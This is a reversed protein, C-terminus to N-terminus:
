RETSSSAVVEATGPASHVTGACLYVGLGFVLDESHRPRCIERCRCLSWRKPARVESLTLLRNRTPQISKKECSIMHILVRRSPVLFLSTMHKERNQSLLGRVSWHCTSKTLIRNLPFPTILEKRQELNLEVLLQQFERETVGMERWADPMKHQVSVTDLLRQIESETKGMERLAVVLEHKDVLCTGQGDMEGFAFEDDQSTVSFVDDFNQHAM